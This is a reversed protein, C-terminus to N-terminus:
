KDNEAREASCGEHYEIICNVQEESMNNVIEAFQDIPLYRLSNAPCDDLPIGLPCDVLLGKIWIRKDNLSFDAFFSNSHRQFNSPNKNKTKKKM